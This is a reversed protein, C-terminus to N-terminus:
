AQRRSPRLDVEVSEASSAPRGEALNSIFRTTSRDGLHKKMKNEVEPDLQNDKSYEGLGGVNTMKTALKAAMAVAVLAM